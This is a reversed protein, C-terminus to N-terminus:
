RVVLILETEETSAGRALDNSCGGREVTCNRPGVASCLLLGRMALPECSRWQSKNNLYPYIEENIRERGEGSSILEYGMDSPWCHGIINGRLWVGGNAIGKTPNRHPGVTVSESVMPHKYPPM